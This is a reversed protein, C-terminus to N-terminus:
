LVRRAGLYRRKYYDSSFEDVRVGTRSAHVFKFDKGDADVDTVIGVHGVTRESNRGGFFVLDGPLLDAIQEVSEGENFQTRSTRSLDINHQRFVFGTFGSCDFSKPGVHGMRYRAGIYRMAISVIDDREMEIQNGVPEAVSDNPVGGPMVMQGSAPILTLMAIASFLFLYKIKVPNFNNYLGFISKEPAFNCFFM